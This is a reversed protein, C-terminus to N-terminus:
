VRGAVYWRSPLEIRTGDPTHETTVLPLEGDALVTLGATRLYEPVAADNVEAPAIGHRFVPALKAPPGAPGGALGMLVPKAAESLEVLLARGRQGVLTAVTEVLRQRDEPECQHLVGRLYVNADGLDARLADADAKDAADLLRYDARGDPDARRAHDLAAASLDTGVVRAFREALYRTQTGNGCGLDVMPLDLATLHPEFLALHVASTRAPEADWFVAGAEDPAERWFGDWADRYRRTVSM